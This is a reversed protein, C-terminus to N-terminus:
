FHRTTGPKWGSVGEGMGAIDGAAEHGMVLPPIRRGTSGDIGHVDSGCIGCARVRILVEDAGPIPMPVDEVAFRRHSKLVLAKM